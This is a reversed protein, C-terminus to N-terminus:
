SIWPTCNEFPADVAIPPPVTITSPFGSTPTLSHISVKSLAWSIQVLEKPTCQEVHHVLLRRLVRFMEGHTLNLNAFAWTISAVDSTGFADVLEVTREALRAFVYEDRVELRSLAAALCVIDKPTELHALNSRVGELMAKKLEEAIPLAHLGPAELHCMHSSGKKVTVNFCVGDYVHCVAKALCGLTSTRDVVSLDDRKQILGLLDPIWSPSTELQVLAWLVNVLGRSHFETLKTSLVNLLQFFRDHDALSRKSALKALRHVATALNIPDMEAIIEATCVALIRGSSTANMLDQQIVLQGPPLRM